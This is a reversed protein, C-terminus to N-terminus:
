STRAWRGISRRTDTCGLEVPHVKADVALEAYTLKKHEYAKEEASHAKDHLLTPTLQLICDCSHLKAMPGSRGGITTNEVKSELMKGQLPFDPIFAKRSLHQHQGAPPLFLFSTLKGGCNSLRTHPQDHLGCPHVDTNSSHSLPFKLPQHWVLLQCPLLQLKFAKPGWAFTIASFNTENFKSFMSVQKFTTLGSNYKTFLM